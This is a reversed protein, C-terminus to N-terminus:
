SRKEVAVMEVSEDDAEDGEPLAAHSVASTMAVIVYGLLLYPILLAIVAGAWMTVGPRSPQELGSLTIKHRLLMNVTYDPSIDQVFYRRGDKTTVHLAERYMQVSTVHKQKIDAAFQDYTKVQSPRPVSARHTGVAWTVLFAALLLCLIAPILVQPSKLGVKGSRSNKRM